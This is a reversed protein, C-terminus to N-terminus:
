GHRPELRAGTARIAERIANGGPKLTSVADRLETFGDLNDVHGFADLLWAEMTKAVEAAAPGTPHAARAGNVRAILTPCDSADRIATLARGLDAPAPARKATRADARADRYGAAEDMDDPIEIELLDRIGWRKAFSIGGGFGQAGPRSEKVPYEIEIWQGGCSIRTVVVWGLDKSARGGQTLVISCETLIPRVASLLAAFTAYGSAWQARDGDVKVQKNKVVPQIKAHFILLAADIKDTQDSTRV